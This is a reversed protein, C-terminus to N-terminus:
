EIEKIEFSEQLQKESTTQNYTSIIARLEKNEKELSHKERELILVQSFLTFVEYDPYENPIQLINRKQRLVKKTQIRTSLQQLMGFLNNNILASTILCLITIQKMSFDKM